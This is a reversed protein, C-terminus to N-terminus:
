VINPQTKGNMVAWIFGVLERAVATVAKQKCKGKLLLHMYKKHLRKQAKWCHHLVEPDQGEQRKRLAQSIGPRHQYHWAAELLLRRIRKNGSKTIGTTKRVDGSSEEGPIVGLFNMLGKASGFRRFDIVETLLGMSTIVDIGRFCRLKEVRAKYQEDGFAIEYIKDEVTKLEQQTHDLIELYRNLIFVDEQADFQISRLFRIHKQTWNDGERYVINHLQLFKIIHQKTATRSKVLQERLRVIARVSEEKETPVHVISVDQNRYSRALKKADLKDTKIKKNKQPISNAAVVECDIGIEKLWRYFVYGCGSAEYCAKIDYRQSVKQFFRQVQAKDNVLKRELEPEKSFGEFLAVTISNQHVDNGVYAVTKKM